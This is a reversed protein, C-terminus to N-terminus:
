FIKEIRNEQDCTQNNCEKKSNNLTYVLTLKTMGIELM